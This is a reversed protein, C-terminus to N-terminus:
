SEPHDRVVDQFIKELHDMAIKRTFNQQYFETANQALRARTKPTTQYAATFADALSDIDEPEATFGLDNEKVITSTDGRVSTIVPVGYSLGAQFKSPIIGDFIGLAKLSVIQFDAGAYVERMKDKDVRGLFEVSNTAGLEAVLKRLHEDLVGSGAIRLKLKPLHSVKDAARIVTELDQFHGLNGAYLLSLGDSYSHRDPSPTGDAWNFVVQTRAAPAGRDILMQMASPAIVINAAAAQYVRRLWVNILTEVTDTVKKPLFGSETVSEPWIDQVHYVFPIGLSKTWARAPDAVTAPTGYVYIVDADAAFKKATRASVAFSVYNLIRTIPNRSHSAFVPVRKVRLGDIIEEFRRRQKYGHSVKGETYHPFTTLVKVIHGRATMEEAIAKPIWSAGDPTYYQTLLLINLPSSEAKPGREPAEISNM